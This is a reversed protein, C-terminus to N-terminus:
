QATFSKLEERNGVKITRKVKLGHGELMQAIAEAVTELSYNSDVTVDFMKQGPYEFTFMVFPQYKIAQVDKLVDQDLVRAFELAVLRISPSIIVAVSTMPQISDFSIVM